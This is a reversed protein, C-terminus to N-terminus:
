LSHLSHLHLLIHDSHMRPLSLDGSFMNYINENRFYSSLVYVILYPTHRALRNRHHITELNHRERLKAIRLAEDNALEQESSIGEM